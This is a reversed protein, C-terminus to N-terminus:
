GEFYKNEALISCVRDTLTLDAGNQLLCVIVDIESKLIALHLCTQKQEKSQVNIDLGADSLKFIYKIKSTEKLSSNVVKHFLTEGDKWIKMWFYIEIFEIQFYWSSSVEFTEFLESNNQNKNLENQFEELKSL